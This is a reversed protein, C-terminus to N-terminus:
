AINKNRKHGKVGNKTRDSGTRMDKLAKKTTSTFVIIPFFVIFLSVLLDKAEKAGRRHSHLVFLKQCKSCKVKLLEGSRNRNRTVTTFLFM